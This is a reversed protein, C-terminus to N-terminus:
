FNVSQFEGEKYYKKYNITGKCGLKEAVRCKEDTGAIGFIRTYGLKSLFETVTLGIGGAVSSIVINM